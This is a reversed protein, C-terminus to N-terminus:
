LLFLSKQLSLKAFVTLRHRAFRDRCSESRLQPEKKPSEKGTALVKYSSPCIKKRASVLHKRICVNKISVTMCTKTVSYIWIFMEIYFIIFPNEYRGVRSKLYNVFINFDTCKNTLAFFRAIKSLIM